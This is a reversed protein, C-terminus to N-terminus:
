SSFKGLNLREKESLSEPLISINEVPIHVKVKEGVSYQNLYFLNINQRRIVIKIKDNLGVVYRTDTGLYVLNEIRGSFNYKATFNPPFIEIKEPRVVLTIVTGIPLHNVSPILLRLDEDILVMSKDEQHAIIGGTLFNSEGIFEAVFRSKPQEYIEVPTGVQLVEGHHMVAIRDSMTLAEEQDHTVYIFTMGLRQQMLKLELQMEQRLKLDLAGLPEDFLLVAPQKILARALAVRQQQGGSLKRPYFKQMDILKVQALSDAVRRNIEPRSLNEMELGFAINEAVTLHPFLAYNQFVTNVPRHFPPSNGMLKDQIYIEGSTPIEFGAIMRLTTTKGCGSPGLISFFESKKIQLNINNVAIFQKKNQSSFIKGINILNVAINEM